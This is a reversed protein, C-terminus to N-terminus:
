SKKSKMFESIQARAVKQYIFAGEPDCQNLDSYSTTKKLDLPEVEVVDTAELMGAENEAADRLAKLLVAGNEMFYDDVAERVEKNGEYDSLLEKVQEASLYVGASYNEVIGQQAPPLIGEPLIDKWPTIYRDRICM